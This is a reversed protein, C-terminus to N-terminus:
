HVLVVKHYSRYCTTCKLPSISCKWHLFLTSPFWSSVFIIYSQSLSSFSPEAWFSPNFIPWDLPLIDGHLLSLSLLLNTTLLLLLLPNWDTLSFRWWKTSALWDPVSALCPNTEIIWIYKDLHVPCLLLLNYKSLNLSLGLFPCITLPHRISAYAIHMCNCPMASWNSLHCNVSKKSKQGHISIIGYIPRQGITKALKQQM